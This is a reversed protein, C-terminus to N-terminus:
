DWLAGYYDFIKRMRNIVDKRHEDEEKYMKESAESSLKPYVKFSESFSLHKTEEYHKKLSKGESNYCKERHEDIWQDINSYDEFAQALDNLYKTWSEFTPFEKCEPYGNTYKALHRLMQGIVPALSDDMSWTDCDAWGRAGRQFFFKIFRPIEKLNYWITYYWTGCKYFQHIM